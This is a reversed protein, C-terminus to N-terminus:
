KISVLKIKKSFYIAVASTVLVVPIIKIIISTKQPIFYSILFLLFAFTWLLLDNKIKINIVKKFAPWYYSGFIAFSIVYGCSLGFAGYKSGYYLMPTSILTNIFGFKLISKEKNIAGLITGMLSFIAMLFAFWVQLQCVKVAPLFNPNFLLTVIERVFLTFIFCLLIATIMFYRFGISVLQYFRKKDNIWISSLNPFIASLAFGLIMNVPLLLKQSLNFYGVEIIKSNLELFNNSLYNTPITILLLSFYPWSERVLEKSSFGFSQIEGILLKQYKLVVLSIIAKIINLILFVCFLFNVNVSQIPLLYVTLFWALSYSLNILSIALMKQNGIFAIEFLHSFCNILAFSSVLLIQEQNLNGFFFNYFLYLLTFVLVSIFRIIAGNIILNKTRLNDRAINRIIINTIGLDAIVFLLTGQSMLFTYIGYNVPSFIKTIKIITIIGILQSLLSGITLYSFNRFVKNNTLQRIM